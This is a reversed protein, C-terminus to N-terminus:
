GDGKGGGARDTERHKKIWKLVDTPKGAVQKLWKPSHLSAGGGSRWFETVIFLEWRGDEVLQRAPHPRRSRLQVIARQPQAARPPLRPGASEMREPRHSCPFRRGPTGIRPHGARAVAQAYTGAGGGSRDRGLSSTLARNRRSPASGRGAPSAKRDVSNSGNLGGSNVIM